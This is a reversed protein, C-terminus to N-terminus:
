MVMGGDVHIIQGTIYDANGSSLFSILQAVDCPTGFRKLPIFDKAKEKISDSLHETMRTQIFGPAVANVLVNKRAYERALTKTMAIVGAKSAAYNVQGPNGSVGVVSAINIIYSKTSRMLKPLAQQACFFACKLNVNMVDDWESEKMRLAINDRTIGANNVLLNIKPIQSFALKISAVDSIDTHIYTVGSDCLKKVDEHSEQVCDLVFVADGRAIVETVIARGIGSVGGTVITVFNEEQM